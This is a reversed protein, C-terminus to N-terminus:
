ARSEEERPASLLERARDGIHEMQREREDAWRPLRLRTSLIGAGGLVAFFTPLLLEIGTKAKAVMAITMILAMFFSAGAMTAIELASGKKTGLRLRHGDATQELVAHLNGNTWERVGAHSSVEGKAGFTQRLEAVIFQWEQDTAERPLDVVRGVSLPAGFMTRRPLAAGRADIAAAADAVRQPALGVEDGVAQLEELTLGEQEVPAPVSATGANTALAFIESVEHETYKRDNAM